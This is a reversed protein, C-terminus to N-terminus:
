RYPHLQRASQVEEAAQKSADAVQKRADEILAYDTLLAPDVYHSMKSRSAPFSELLSGLANTALRYDRYDEEVREKARIAASVWGGTRDDARMHNRLAQISASLRARYRHSSAWRLLIERSTLVYDDAADGLEEAPSVDMGHLKRVNADVALADDYLKPLPGPTQVSVTRQDSGLADRMQLSTNKVLETVANRLEQQKYETYGWYGFASGAFLGAVAIAITKTKIGSFSM